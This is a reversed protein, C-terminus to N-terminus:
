RLGAEAYQGRRTADDVGAAKDNLTQPWPQPHNFGRFKRPLKIEFAATSPFAAAVASAEM